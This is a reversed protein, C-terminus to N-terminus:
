GALIDFNETLNILYSRRTIRRLVYITIGVGEMLTYVCVFLYEWILLATLVLWTYM